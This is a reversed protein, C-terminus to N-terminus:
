RVLVGREENISIRLLRLVIEGTLISIFVSLVQSSYVRKSGVCSFCGSLKAAKRLAIKHLVFVEQSRNDFGSLM